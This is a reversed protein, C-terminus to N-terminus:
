DVEEGSLLSRVESISAREMPRGHIESRPAERLGDEGFVTIEVETGGAMFRFMPLIAWGDKGFRLRREDSDYPIGHDMLFFLVTEPTDAFLHLQVGSSSDATGLLVPGVLRPRFREFLEMASVAQRRLRYLQSIHEPGGFVQQYEILADQIEQNKPLNQTEAAGLREAAKRKAAFYDKIGEEAMLRAAERVLSIRMRQDRPSSGRRGM